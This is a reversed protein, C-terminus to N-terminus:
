KSRDHRVRDASQSWSTDPYSRYRSSWAATKCTRAVLTTVASYNRCAWVLPPPHRLRSSSRIRLRSPTSPTQSSVPLACQGFRDQDRSCARGTLLVVPIHSIEPTAKIAGLTSPGDLEPMMADLLIVDPQHEIAAQIGERGSSATLTTWGATLELSCSLVSVNDPEDDVVLVRCM